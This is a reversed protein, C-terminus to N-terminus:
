EEQMISVLVAEAAKRVKGAPLFGYSHNIRVIPTVKQIAM